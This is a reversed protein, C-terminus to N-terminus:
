QKRSQKKLPVSKKEEILLPFIFKIYLFIVVFLFLSGAGGHFLTLGLTESFSGILLILVIRVINLIHLLLLGGILALATRVYHITKQHMQSLIILVFLGIFLLYATFGSCVPGFVVSFDQYAVKWQSAHLIIEGPFLRLLTAVMHLTHAATLIHFAGELSSSLVYLAVLACGSLFTGIYRTLFSLPLALVIAPLLPTLLSLYLLGAFLPGGYVPHSQIFLHMATFREFSPHTAWYAFMISCIYLLLGSCLQYVGPWHLTKKKHKVKIQVAIFFAFLFAILVLPSNNYGVPGVFSHELLKGLWDSSIVFFTSLLLFYAIAFRVILAYPMLRM